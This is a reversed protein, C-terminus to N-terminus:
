FAISIWDNRVLEVFTIHDLQWRRKVANTCYDRVIQIGTEAKAGKIKDELENTRENMREEKRLSRNM